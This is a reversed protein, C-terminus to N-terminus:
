GFIDNLAQQRQDKPLLSIKHSLNATPRITPGRLTKKLLQQVSLETQMTELEDSSALLQRCESVTLKLGLKRSYAGLHAATANDAVLECYETNSYVYTNNSASSDLSVFALTSLLTLTVLKM